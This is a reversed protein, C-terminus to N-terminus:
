RGGARGQRRKWLRSLLDKVARSPGLHAHEHRRSSWALARMLVPKRASSRPKKVKFTESWEGAMDIQKQRSHEYMVFMQRRLTNMAFSGKNSFRVMFIASLCEFSTIFELHFPLRNQEFADIIVVPPRLMVQAPLEKQQLIVTKLEIIHDQSLVEIRSELAAREAVLRELLRVM